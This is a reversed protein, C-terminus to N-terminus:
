KMRDKSGVERLIRIPEIVIPFLSYASLHFYLMYWKFIYDSSEGDM